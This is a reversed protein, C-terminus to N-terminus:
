QPKEFRLYDTYSFLPQGSAHDTETDAWTVLVFDGHYAGTMTRAAANDVTGTLTMTSDTAGVSYTGEFAREIDHNIGGTGFPDPQSEHLQVRLLFSSDPRLVISGGRYDYTRQYGQGGLTFAYTDSHPIVFNNVTKLTYLTGDADATQCAAICAALLVSRLAANTM